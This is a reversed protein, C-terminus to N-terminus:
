QTAEALAAELEAVRARLRLIEQVHEYREDIHMQSAGRWFAVQMEVSERSITLRERPCELAAALADIEELTVPKTRESPCRLSNLRSIKFGPALRARWWAVYEETIIEGRALGNRILEPWLYDAFETDIM